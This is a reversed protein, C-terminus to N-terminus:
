THIWRGTALSPFDYLLGLFVFDNDQRCVVHILCLEQSVSYSDNGFATEFNTARSAEEFLGEALIEVKFNVGKILVGKLVLIQALEQILNVVGEIRALSLSCM